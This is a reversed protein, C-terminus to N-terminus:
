TWADSGYQAPMLLTLIDPVVEIKAPAHGSTEGDIQLPAGPGLEIHRARKVTVGRMGKLRNLLVGSFYKLYIPAWQGEFSVVEFEPVTLRVGRAIELDGGYNRVRSILAFSSRINRGDIKLDFEPLRRAVSGFGGLWYAGKGLLNKVSPKLSHVIHADLGAGAMLLFYRSGRQQTIRGAAIRRPQLSSLREAVAIPDTGLGLEVALVNATGGPLIGIPIGSGAMGNAIENLTGDGGFGIVQEIGRDIAERALATASHPGSTPIVNVGAGLSELIRDL